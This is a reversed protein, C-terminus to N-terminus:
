KLIRYRLHTVNKGDIVQQIELKKQDLERGGFLRIGGGLLVPSVHLFVEELLGAKIAQRIVTATGISVNKGQAAEKAQKIASDIGDTVYTFSTHGQPYNEPPEHTMIFVPVGAVPHSGEWGNVLDYTRRGVIMAGTQDVAEDYVERNLESLQFFDNHKSPKDGSFLWSHLETGGEGLPLKPNDNPGTIFGDLSMSIDAIVKSM